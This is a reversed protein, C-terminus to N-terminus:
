VTELTARWHFARRNDLGRGTRGPPPGHEHAAGGDRKCREGDDGEREGAAGIGEDVPRLVPELRDPPGVEVAALGVVGDQEGVVRLPHRDVAGVEVPNGPLRDAPGVEVAEVLVLGEDAADQAGLPERDVASV